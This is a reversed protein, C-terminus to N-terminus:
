INFEKTDKKSENLRGKKENTKITVVMLIACLILFVFNCVLRFKKKQESMVM